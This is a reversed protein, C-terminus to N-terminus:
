VISLLLHSKVKGFRDICLLTALRIRMRLFSCSTKLVTNQLFKLNSNETTIRELFFGIAQIRPNLARARVYIHGNKYTNGRM